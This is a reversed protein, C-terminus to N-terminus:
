ILRGTARCFYPPNATEYDKSETGGPHTDHDRDRWDLHFRCGDGFGGCGRHDLTMAQRLIVEDAM